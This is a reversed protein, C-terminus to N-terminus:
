SPLLYKVRCVPIMASPTNTVNTEASPSATEARPRSVEAATNVVSQTSKMPKISPIIISSETAEVQFVAIRAPVPQIM